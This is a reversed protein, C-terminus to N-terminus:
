ISDSCITATNSQDDNNTNNSAQSHRTLWFYFLRAKRYACHQLIQQHNQDTRTHHFCPQVHDALFKDIAPCNIEELNYVEKQLYRSLTKCKETGKAYFKTNPLRLSISIFIQQLFIYPCDGSYWSLGHLFDIVWKHAKQESVSLLHFDKPPVFTIM